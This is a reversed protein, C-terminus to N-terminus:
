IRILEQYVINQVKTMAVGCQDVKTLFAISSCGCVRSLAVYLQGHAFFPFRLDILVRTLTKGQSKNVSTAFSVKVPFQTRVFRIGDVDINFKIRPLVVIANPDCPHHLTMNYRTASIFVFKKGTLLGGETMLNRVIHVTAGPKLRIVHDPVGVDFYMKMFSDTCLANTEDPHTAESSELEILHGPMADIIANNHDELPANYTSLIACEKTTKQGSLVEEFCWARAQDPDTFIPCGTFAVDVEAVKGDGIVDVYASWNPDGGDRMNKHPELEVTSFLKWHPSSVVTAALIQNRDGNKVIPPLQRFDGCVVVSKGGFAKSSDGLERCLREIENFLTVNLTSIEDIFLVSAVQILAGRLTGSTVSSLQHTEEMNFGLGFAKHCTTGGEYNSAPNGMYACPLGVKGLSRIGNLTCEVTFTKGRGAPAKVFIFVQDGSTTAHMISDVVHKQSANTTMRSYKERFASGCREPPYLHLQRNLAEVRLNSADEASEDYDSLSLDFESLNRGERLLITELSKLVRNRVYREDSSAAIGNPYISRDCMAMYYEEFLNSASAGLCILLCFYYRLEGPTSGRDVYERFCHAHEDDDILGAANAAEFFTSYCIGGFTRYDAFSRASKYVALLKLSYLELKSSPVHFLRVVVPKIVSRLEVVRKIMDTFFLDCTRKRPGKKVVQYAQMYALYKLSEFNYGQVNVPRAFYDLMDSHYSPTKGRLTVPEGLEMQM